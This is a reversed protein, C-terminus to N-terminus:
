VCWMGYFEEPRTILGVCLSRGSLGCCEPPIRVWLVPLSPVASGRTLRRQRQTTYLAYIVKHKTAVFIGESCQACMVRFQQEWSPSYSAVGHIRTSVNTQLTPVQMFGSPTMDGLVPNKKECMDKRSSACLKRQLSTTDFNICNGTRSSKYFTQMPSISYEKGQIDHLLFDSSQLSLLSM